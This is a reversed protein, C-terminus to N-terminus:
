KTSTEQVFYPQYDNTFRVEKQIVSTIKSDKLTVLLALGHRTDASFNQDFIFNGLSYAIYGGNYEEVEEVVHPHHGIVLNAGADIALKGVREQEANHKTHYEHCLRDIEGTTVGPVVYPTIYDLVEATLQGVVRMAAFDEPGHLAIDRPTKPAADRM